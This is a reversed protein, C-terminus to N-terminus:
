LLGNQVLRRAALWRLEPPLLLLPALRVAPALARARPREDRFWRLLRVVVPARGSVVYRGKTHWPSLVSYLGHPYTASFVQRTDYAVHVDDGRFLWRDVILGLPDVGLRVTCSHFRPFRLNVRGLSVARLLPTLFPIPLKDMKVCRVTYEVFAERVQKDVQNIHQMLYYVDWGYKRAHVLWDLVPARERDQFARANLWTGLEDLVLLGNRDEDYSENGCGIAFLDAATPKDPLRLVTAKSSRPLLEDLNLDLNTAVRRGQLLAERIRLVVSKTKGTGKKGTIAYDSM